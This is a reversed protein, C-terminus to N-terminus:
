AMKIIATENEKVTTKTLWKELDEPNLQEITQYENVATNYGLNIRKTSAAYVQQARDTDEKFDKIIQKFDIGTEPQSTKVLTWEELFHKPPKTTRVAINHNRYYSLLIRGVNELHSLYEGFLIKWRKQNDFISNAEDYRSSILSYEEDLERLRSDRISELTDMLHSTINVYEEIREKHTRAIRGFDYYRDDASWFKISAILSCFCGMAFLLWSEIDVLSLPAFFLNKLAIQEPHEAGIIMASRLHAVGLNIYLILTTLLICFIIGLLKKTSSVNPFLRFTYHGVFFAGIMNLISPVFATFIGGVMGLEHGKAFFYGNMYTEIVVLFFIIAYHLALNKPYIAPRDLNNNEKFKNVYREMSKLESRSTYIEFKSQHTQKKFDSETSEAIEELKGVNGRSKLRNVRDEFSRNNDYYSESVDKMQDDVYAVIREEMDDLAKTSALPLNKNGREIAEEKLKLQVKIKEADLQPFTLPTGEYVSGFQQTLSELKTAISM